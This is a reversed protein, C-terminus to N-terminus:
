RRRVALSGFFLAILAVLGIGLYIMTRRLMM